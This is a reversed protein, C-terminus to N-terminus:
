KKAMKPKEAEEESVYEAAGAIVLNRATDDDIELPQGAKGNKSASIVCNRLLKIKM